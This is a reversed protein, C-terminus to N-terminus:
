TGGETNPSLIGALATLAAAAMPEDHLSKAGQHLISAIKGLVALDVQGAVALRDFDQVAAAAETAVAATMTPHKVIQQLVPAIDAASLFYNGPLSTRQAVGRSGIALNSHNNIQAINVGGRLRNQMATVDGDFQELCTYGDSLLRAHILDGGHAFQGDLFNLESLYKGAQSIEALTFQTGFFWSHPSSSMDTPQDRNGAQKDLWKLLRTRATQRRISGSEADAFQAVAQRGDSTVMLHEEGRRGTLSDRRFLDTDFVLRKVAAYASISDIGAGTRAEDIDLETRGSRDLRGLLLARLIRSLAVEDDDTPEVWWFSV